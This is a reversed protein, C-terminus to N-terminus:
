PRSTRKDQGKIFKPQLSVILCASKLLDYVKKRFATFQGSFHQCTMIDNFLRSEEVIEIGIYKNPAFIVDTLFSELEKLVINEKFQKDYQRKM